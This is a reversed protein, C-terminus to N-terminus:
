AKPSLIRAAASAALWANMANIVGSVRCHLKVLARWMVSKDPFVLIAVSPLFV